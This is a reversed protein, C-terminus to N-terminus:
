RLRMMQSNWKRLVNASPFRHLIVADNVEEDYLNSADSGKLGRIAQTFVYSAYEPVYYLKQESMPYESPELSEVLRV